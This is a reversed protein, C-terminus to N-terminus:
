FPIEDDLVTFTVDSREASGIARLVYFKTGPHQRALREAEGKALNMSAHKVTPAGQGEGYVMWFQRM